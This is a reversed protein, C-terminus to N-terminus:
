FRYRWSQLRGILRIEENKQLLCNEGGIKIFSSSVQVNNVIIFLSLPTSHNRKLFESLSLMATENNKKNIFHSGAPELPARARPCPALFVVV